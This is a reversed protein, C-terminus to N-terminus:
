PQTEERQQLRAAALALLQPAAQLYWYTSEPTAHGLYTTLRPMNAAVDTGARYWDILTNVAFAHRLDHIRPRQRGPTACIGAELLLDQFVKYVNTHLLRTGTASLFFAPSSPLPWRRDRAHTYDRLATVTSPHLPLERTAGFKGDRVTVIADALEVDVRDLKLAEGVRMGSVALLGFLTRYTTARLPSRLTGTAVLLSAIEADSYLYPKSRPRPEPLLGAPPVECAHDLTQLYRAFGRAVSLRKVRMESGSSRLAWQMALQTTVTSAGARQVHDILDSLLRGHTALKFGLARRVTLYEEAAQHLACSM